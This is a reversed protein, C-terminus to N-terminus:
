PKKALPRYNEISGYGVWPRLNYVTETANMQGYSLIESNLLLQYQLPDFFTVDDIGDEPKIETSGSSFGYGFAIGKQSNIFTVANIEGVNVVLVSKPKGFLEIAHQLTVGLKHEFGILSVKDNLIYLFGLSNLDKNRSFNIADDFGVLPLNKDVIPQDIRDVKSLINLAEKKTTIGVIVNEWCPPACVPNDFLNPQEPAVVCGMLIM